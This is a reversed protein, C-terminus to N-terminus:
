AAAQRRYREAIPVPRGKLDRQLYTALVECAFAEVTLGPVPEAHSGLFSRFGTESLFPRQWDVAHIEFGPYFSWGAGIGLLGETEIRVAIGAVDLVFSGAQGWLPVTGAPAATERRLVNGPADDGALYGNRGGNLRVALNRAEERLTQVADTDPALMAAHHRELLRRFYPLAEAMTAPLHATLKDFRRAQNAHEAGALLDAFGLQGPAPANRRAM